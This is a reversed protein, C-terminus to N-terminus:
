TVNFTWAVPQATAQGDARKWVMAIVNNREGKRLSEIVKGPGPQFEVLGLEPVKHLGDGEIRDVVADVTVGNITLTADYDVSLDIGVTSQALVQSGSEPILREVFAPKSESANEDGTVAQSSVLWILGAGCVLVIASAIILVRRPLM